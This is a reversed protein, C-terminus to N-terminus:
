EEEDDKNSEKIYMDYLTKLENDITEFLYDDQMLYDFLDDIEKENLEANIGESWDKIYNKFYNETINRWNM